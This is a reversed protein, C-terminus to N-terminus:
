RLRAAASATPPQQAAFEIVIYETRQVLCPTWPPSPHKWRRVLRRPRRGEPAATRRADAYVLRRQGGKRPSATCHTTSGYSSTTMRSSSSSSSWWWHVRTIPRQRPQRRSLRLPSPAPPPTQTTRGSISSLTPRTRARQNPKPPLKLSEGSFCPGGILAGRRPTPPEVPTDSLRPPPTRTGELEPLYRRWDSFFLGALNADKVTQQKPPQISPCVLDDVPRRRSQLTRLCRTLHRPHQHPGSPRGPPGSSRLEKGSSPNLNSPHTGHPAAGGRVSYGTPAPLQQATGCHQTRPWCLALREAPFASGMDLSPPPFPLLSALHWSGNYCHM